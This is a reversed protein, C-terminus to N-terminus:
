LMKLDVEPKDDSTQLLNVAYHRGVTRIIGQEIVQILVTV